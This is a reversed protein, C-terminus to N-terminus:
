MHRRVDRLARPGLHAIDTHGFLIQGASPELLRLALRGITTKGCGSEGVLGLTQGAHLAFRVGDVARIFRPTRGPWWGGVPFYMKLDTVALLPESTEVM